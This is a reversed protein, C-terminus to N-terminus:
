INNLILLFPNFAAMLKEMVVPMDTYMRHESYDSDQTEDKINLKLVDMM